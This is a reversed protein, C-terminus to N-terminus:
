AESNSALAAWKGEGVYSSQERLTCGLRMCLSHAVFVVRQEAVVAADEVAAVAALTM